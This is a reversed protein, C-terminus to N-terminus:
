NSICGWSALEGRTPYRGTLGLEDDALVFPLGNTGHEELYAKVRADPSFMKLEAIDLDTATIRQINAGNQKAWEYDADFEAPNGSSASEYVRIFYTM